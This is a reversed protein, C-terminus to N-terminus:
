YGEMFLQEATQHYDPCCLIDPDEKTGAHEGEWYFESGNLKPICYRDKGIQQVKDCLKCQFKIVVM